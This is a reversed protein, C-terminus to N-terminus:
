KRLREWSHTEALARKALTLLELCFLRSLFLSTVTFDPLLHCSQYSQSLLRLNGAIPYIKALTFLSVLFPSLHTRLRSSAFVVASLRCCVSSLRCVAVAPVLRWAGRCCLVASSLVAPRCSPLRNRHRCSSLVVPRQVPRCTSYHCPAVPHPSWGRAPPNSIYGEWIACVCKFSLDCVCM